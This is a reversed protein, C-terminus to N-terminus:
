LTKEGIMLLVYKCDGQLTLWARVGIGLPLKSLCILWIAHKQISSASSDMYACSFGHLRHNGKYQQTTSKKKLLYGVSVLFSISMFLFCVVSQGYLEPSFNLYM